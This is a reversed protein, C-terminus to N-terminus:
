LYEEMTIVVKGNFKGTGFYHMAKPVESLPYESDIIPKVKGSNFYEEYLKLDDSNARHMLLGYQRGEKKSVISGIILTNFISKATGGILVCIGADVLARKYDSVKRNSVVDIILDYRKRSKTFDEKKYDIVFDAGLSTLMDLKDESDVCTAEAGHQKAIQLGFTGVGGGAGNILVKHGPQIERKYRLSQLALVVAQPSAAAQEFTMSKPKLALAKETGIAYEAFAGWKCISIDGYVEDGPKFKAINKGVSEVTGAVDCGLINHKPKTLGEVRALFPKGLVLDYDWSNISAAHVKILVEDDNPIPREVDLLKLNDPSGYETYYIAKM